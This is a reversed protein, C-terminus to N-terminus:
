RLTPPNVPLGELRRLSITTLPVGNPPHLAVRYLRSPASPPVADNHTMLWLAEFEAQFNDQYYCAADHGTCAQVKAKILSLLAGKMYMDGLLEGQGPFCESVQVPDISNM